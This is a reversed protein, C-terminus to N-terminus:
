KVLLKNAKSVRLAPHGVEPCVCPPYNVIHPTDSCKRAVVEVKLNGGDILYLPLGKILESVQKFRESTMAPSTTSDQTFHDLERRMHWILHMTNHADQPLNLKNLEERFRDYKVATLLRAVSAEM